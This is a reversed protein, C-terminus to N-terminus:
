AAREGRADRWPVFRFRDDHEEKVILQVAEPTEWRVGRIAACIADVPVYNLAGLAMGCELYKTGGYWAGDQPTNVSVFAVPCYDRLAANVELLRAADAERAAWVLIV